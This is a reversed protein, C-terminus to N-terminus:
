PADGTDADEHTALRPVLFFGDRMEPAFSERPLALPIPPGEDARLPTTTLAPERHVGAGPGPDVDTTDVASLQEMHALIGNLERVLPEIRGPELGLRALAAVHRVDDESVAM